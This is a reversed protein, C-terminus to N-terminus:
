EHHPHYGADLPRRSYYADLFCIFSIGVVVPVALLSAFITLDSFHREDHLFFYTQKARAPLRCRVSPLRAHLPM